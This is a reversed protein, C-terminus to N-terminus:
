FTGAIQVYPQGWKEIFTVSNSLVLDTLRVSSPLSPTGTSYYGNGFYQAGQDPAQSLSWTQACQSGSVKFGFTVGAPASLSAMFGLLYEGPTISWTGLPVSRFRSGSQGGFISVASTATGSAWSIAITGSSALSATSRSLTYVGLSITYSGSPSTLSTATTNFTVLAILLDVRTASMPYGFSIRQLSLNPNSSSWPVTLGWYAGAVQNEWYKLLSLQATVTQGNAGFSFGGSNSFVVQGSTVQTTGASISQIAATAGSQSATIVSYVSTLWSSQMGFTVSNSNSFVGTGSQGLLTGASVNVGIRLTDLFAV